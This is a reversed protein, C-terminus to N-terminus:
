KNRRHIDYHREHSQIDLKIKFITKKFGVVISELFYLLFLVPVLAYESIYRIRKTIKM